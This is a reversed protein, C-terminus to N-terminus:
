ESPRTVPPILAFNKRGAFHLEEPIDSLDDFECLAGIPMTKLTVEGDYVLGHFTGLKSNYLGLDKSVNTNIM